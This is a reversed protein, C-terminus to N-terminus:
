NGFPDEKKLLEQLHILAKEVNAAKSPIVFIRIIKNGIDDVNVNFTLIFSVLDADTEQDLREITTLAPWPIATTKSKKNGKEKLPSIDYYSYTFENLSFSQDLVYYFGFGDAGYNVKFARGNSVKVIENIYKVTEEKTQAFTSNALLIAFLLFKLKLTKM